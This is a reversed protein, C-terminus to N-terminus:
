QPQPLKAKESSAWDVLTKKDAESLKADTHLWLYSNLPMIGKEVTKAIEDLKKYKRKETYSAFSTFNLERKGEKIHDAVWFNAPFINDYWPYSTHDSHCDYCSKKLLGMVNDPVALAQTIDQPGSASGQNKAPQILQALLFLVLIILFIRGRKRKKQM